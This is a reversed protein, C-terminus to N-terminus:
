KKLSGKADVTQHNCVKDATHLAAFSNPFYVVGVGDLNTFVLVLSGRKPKLLARRKLECGYSQIANEMLAIQGSIM